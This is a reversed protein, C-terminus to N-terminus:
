PALRRGYSEDGSVQRGLEAVAAEIRAGFRRVNEGEEPKLATGFTVVVHSRLHSPGTRYREAKAYRPGMLEGAGLVFTPVVLAGTREALYAAGGKFEQLDGTTTRGGEPYILLHWGAELLRQALEASRRNVKHREIPIANFLLVTPVAKRASLFFTDLAAAVVTRRRVAFPLASLVLPTDLHSVHNTAFIMTADNPLGDAGRVEMSALRRMLPAVLGGLLLDRASRAPERRSWDTPFDLGLAVPV